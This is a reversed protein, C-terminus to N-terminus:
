ERASLGLERLWGADSGEGDAMVEKADNPWEGAMWSCRTRAGVMMQKRNAHCSMGRGM